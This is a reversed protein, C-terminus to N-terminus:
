SNKNCAKRGTNDNARREILERTKRQASAIRNKKIVAPFVSHLIQVRVYVDALFHVYNDKKQLLRINHTTKNDKTRRAIIHSDNSRRQSAKAQYGM